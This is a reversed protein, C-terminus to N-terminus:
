QKSGAEQEAEAEAKKRKARRDYLFAVLIFVLLGLRVMAAGDNGWRDQALQMLVVVGLASPIIVWWYNRLAWNMRKYPDPNSPDFDTM